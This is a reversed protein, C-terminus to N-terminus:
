PKPRLEGTDQDPWYGLDTRRKYPDVRKRLALRIVLCRHELMRLDAEIHDLTIIIQEDTM